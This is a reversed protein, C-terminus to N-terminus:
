NVTSSRKNVTIEDDNMKICKIFFFMGIILMIPVVMVAMQYSGTHESIIGVLGVGMFSASKGCIDMFGFFEGARDEPIIKVFYSRSLAQVGGQFAGVSLALIWFQYQEKLGLAYLGIFIYAIICAIILKEVRQTKSLRGFIIACPFAIIQTVLFAVLLGDASLGVATGYPTAMEMVTYVGDIYFFYAILFCVIKKHKRIDRLTSFLRAMSDRFPHASPARYHIQRYSKLIPTSFAFWWVATIIFSFLMALQMSFMGSLVLGLCLVFPVCSGIYGWAYGATSVRDMKETTTVDPLMSDSFILSCSHCTKALVFIVLFAFIDSVLGLGICAAGGIIVSGALVPKKFDKTDALTGLVPGLIATILTSISLSYSWYALYMNTELGANGALFAFYIPLISTILLIFASNAVDYMIWKKELPTFKFNM